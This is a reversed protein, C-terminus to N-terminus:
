PTPAYVEMEWLSYGYITGRQQGLMRVYRGAAAPFTIDDWGGDGNVTSYVDSWAAGDQSVQLKYSKGYAAEWNLRVREVTHVSGLDVQIWENDTYNSGWRTAPDGDSANGVALSATKSSSAAVPRNLALNIGYTHVNELGANVTRMVNVMDTYPQDQQNVLGINYNEGDKRGTVAQDYYSFWGSGLFLPHAAQGEVFTKFAAGRDAITARSVAANVPSLGRDATSFAFELNVLPKGFSEYRTIWSADNTYSDVSFVDVFPMAESDWELSTRWTPVVSVGLFLHNADHRRIINTITTFYTRSALRIYDSVDASPVKAIEIATDKLAAFSPASTGLLQNVAALNNNYRPALFDVFASKAPSTSTYKLVTSVVEANWGAENDYVYGILWPDNKAQDLKASIAQEIKAEAGPDFVDYTWLIRKLSSPDQLVSIYPFTINKPRTWKSFANFGWQILRKRTIDEWSAEFGSGYKKMVNAVVFSVREGNVDNAYAPAYAIRDPLEEFVQRPTVNDAKKLPTGYGTEWLSTADVGKLIFKYGAPTIFWWKGDIQQVRFYGTATYQGGNKIGGYPDYKQTNLAVNALAAAEAAYEQQLQADSTVKGPWSEYLWQGYRDAMRADKPLEEAMQAATLPPAPNAGVTGTGQYIEVETLPLHQFKHARKIDIVIFRAMKSGMPFTVSENLAEGPKVYKGAIRYYETQAEPRYKVTFEKFGWYANPANLVVRISDLPYDKLLDFVVQVTGQSTDSGMWGAYTSTKGDLLVGTASAVLGTAGKDPLSGGNPAPGYYYNGTKLLTGAGAATGGVPVAAALIVWALLLSWVRVPRWAKTKM